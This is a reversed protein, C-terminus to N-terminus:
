NRIEVTAVRHSQKPVQFTYTQGSTESRLERVFYDGNLEVLQLSSKDLHDQRDVGVPMAYMTHGKGEIVVQKNGATLDRVQIRYDGPALTAIGWHASVPLHFSAQVAAQSCCAGALGALAVFGFIRNISFNM